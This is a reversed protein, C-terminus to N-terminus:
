KIGFLIKSTRKFKAFLCIIIMSSIFSVIELFACKGLYQIQLPFRHHNIMFTLGEMVCIHVFYIGLSIKSIVTVPSYAIKQYIKRNYIPEGRKALEFLFISSIVSFISNYRITYDYELSFLWFQFLCFSLFSLISLVFVLRTSMRSLIDKSLFYGLLLIVAYMSFINSSDLTTKLTHKLGFGTIVANIDPLVFSCFFVITCPIVFYYNEVASLSIALMPILLYLCLIMPMYWMSGMTVPNLFLLTMVFRILCVKIGEIHLVSNNGIQLYWFMITLWIETTILLGLWNSKLFKVLNKRDAYERQLLLAGTIMIFLPVGLRSFSYLITKTINMFLSLSNFEDIQGSAINFSRNVAHNLTISIIATFRVLDLYHIRDVNTENSSISKM